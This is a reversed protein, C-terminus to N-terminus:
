PKGAGKAKGKPEQADAPPGPKAAPNPAPEQVVVPQEPVPAPAPPATAPTPTPTPSVAAVAAKAAAAGADAERMLDARVAELAADIGKFRADSILGSSAAEDLDRELAALADLAGDIRNEAAAQTLALVRIQLGRLATDNPEANRLAPIAAMAIAAAALLALFALAARRGGPALVRGAPRPVVAPASDQDM